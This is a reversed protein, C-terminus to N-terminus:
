ASCLTNDKIWSLYDKSGYVAPYVIFAPCDYSHLENIRKEAKKVNSKVTKCLLVYEKSNEIKGKWSYVSDVPFYNVCAVIKEKVLSKAIKGAEKRSTCTTYIMVYM